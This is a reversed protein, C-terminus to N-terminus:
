SSKSMKREIEQNLTQCEFNILAKQKKTKKPHTRNIMREIRVGIRTQIHVIEIM